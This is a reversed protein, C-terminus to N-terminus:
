ARPPVPLAGSRAVASDRASVATIPYGPRSPSQTTIRTQTTAQDHQRAERARRTGQNAFLITLAFDLDLREGYWGPVITTPTIDADHLDGTQRDPAPLPPSTHLPTGNPLRFTFRGPQATTLTLHGHHIQRHCRKCLSILNDLSTPGGHIWWTIHHAQSARRDCGPRQCRGHDRDALARRLAPSPDRRRRGANLTTGHQDHSIWSLIADCAITQLTHHSIAPGDQIHCLSAPRRGPRGPAAAPTTGRASPAATQRTDPTAHSTHRAATDRDLDPDPAPTLTDPTAHIIVQYVDPNQADRTKGAIFAEAIEVLADALSASTPRPRAPDLLAGPGAAPSTGPEAPDPQGGGPTGAEPQSANRAEASAGQPNAQATPGPGPQTDGGPRTQASARGSLAAPTEASVGPAIADATEASVPGADPGPGPAPPNDTIAARLATLVAAGDEPPLRVSLSLSGDDNHRWTLRRSLRVQEDEAATIVRHARAFRELQNATMPAALEALDADSDPTAIRTLARVKAFSFRGAAFESRITPLARMARAVRVHERATGSALQCKWSLWAACSPMDWEAWGRRADYDGLAQLFRCTTAALHGALTCIEAELVELPVLAQGGGAAAGPAGSGAPDGPAGLAAPVGPAAPIGPDAPPATDRGPEHDTMTEFM